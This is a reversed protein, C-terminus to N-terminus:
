SRKPALVARAAPPLRPLTVLGYGTEFDHGPPGLDTASKQLATRIQEGTWDRHQSWLLATLAAAQPAAASTGGFPQARSVCTFPVVAVLDPKPRTSNPGCSSYAMRRGTEDVAGVAIVEPGDAPFTISGRSTSCELGASLASLHFPGAPGQILEVRVHYVHDAKPIFQVVGCHAGHTDGSPACGVERHATEDYVRLRYSADSKWCLEVSVQDQGWPSLLNDIQGPRWEHFGGSGRTFSGSWHRQAINGASAFCLLSNQNNDGALIRALEEHVSGGGEGDSWCPMILSCSIIRAGQARAWRVAKLFQEPRDPEWNAFLLDAEPALTHIVEGCLIGHQSDRAELNGDLRFSQVTVQKPLGKGLHDRYGRFGSDLVAVKVGQGRLGASHWAAVDSRSM